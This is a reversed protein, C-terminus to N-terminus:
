NQMKEKLDQWTPLTGGDLTEQSGDYLHLQEALESFKESWHKLITAFEHLGDHIPKLVIDQMDPM